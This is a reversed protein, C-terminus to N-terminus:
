YYLLWKGTLKEISNTSLGCMAFYHILEDRSFEFSNMLPSMPIGNFFHLSQVIWKILIFIITYACILISIQFLFLRIFILLPGRALFPIPFLSNFSVLKTPLQFQFRDIQDKFGVLQPKIPIKLYSFNCPLIQFYSYFKSIPIPIDTQLKRLYSSKEISFIVKRIHGINHASDLIVTFPQTSRIANVQRTFLRHM